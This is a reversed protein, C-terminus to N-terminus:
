EFLAKGDDQSIFLLWRDAAIHLWSQENHLELPGMAEVIENNEPGRPRARDDYDSSNRFAM